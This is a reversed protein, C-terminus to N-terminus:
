GRASAERARRTDDIWSDREARHQRLSGRVVDSVTPEPRRAGAGRGRGGDLGGAPRAALRKAMDPALWPREDRLTKQLAAELAAGKLDALEPAAVRLVDVDIVGLALARRELEDSPEGAAGVPSADTAAAPMDGLDPAAVRGGAARFAGNLAAHEPRERVVADVRGISRGARILDNMNM